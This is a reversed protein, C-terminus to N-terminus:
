ATVEEFKSIITDLYALLEDLLHQNEPYQDPTQKLEMIKTKFAEVTLTRNNERGFLRDQQYEEWALQEADNLSGPYNRAKYRIFLETLRDDEFHLSANKIQELSYGRIQEFVQKDKDAFFGDYLQYEPDTDKEFEQNAFVKRIKDRVHSAQKITQLNRYCVELKIGVRKASDSDLTNLPALIPCKNVHVAKLPVREMDESMESSPTFVRKRIEEAKLELLQTPDVSLDYVIYANKNTPHMALPAIVATCHQTAPYKSSVHLLPTMQRVDLLKIAHQKGRKSYAYDYLKPQETKILKAFAITAYVDSLADHASDHSINNEKTLLELRFSTTGNENKPWTIGEPRLAHTLRVMDIIDWRSNGNKWEREYPDYFNRYFAYRMFEDDFRLNNYGVVCTNPQSFEQHIRQVFDKELLGKGNAVEPTIGTVLCSIPEPLIEEPLQCFLTLPDGIINLDEDTRVGAFQCIRDRKSDIGFTELDYWYLTNKSNM